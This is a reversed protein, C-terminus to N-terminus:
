SLLIFGMSEETSATLLCPYKSILRANVFVFYTKDHQPKLGESDIINYYKLPFRYHNEENFILGSEAKGFSIFSKTEQRM